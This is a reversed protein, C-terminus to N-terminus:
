SNLHHLRESEHQVCRALAELAAEAESASAKLTQNQEELGACREYTAAMEATLQQVSSHQAQQALALQAATQDVAKKCEATDQIAEITELKSQELQTAAQNLEDLVM